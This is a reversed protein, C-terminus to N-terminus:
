RDPGFRLTVTRPQDCPTDLLVNYTHRWTGAATDYDSQWFAADASAQSLRTTKGDATVHLAFGKYDSLGTFTVPVYALGGTVTLEAQGKADAAVVLPYPQLLKGTRVSPQLDNGVAQRAVPHWTNSRKELSAVLNANPGYYDGARVPLIVMEVTCDIFDGKKFKTGCTMGISAFRNWCTGIVAGTPAPCNKGDVRAKWRRLILGRNAWAGHPPENAAAHLSVWPLRGKLAFMRQYGERGTPKWEELMKAGDGVAVLGAQHENYRDAGLSFLEFREVAVDKVVEYRLHYYGRVIDDTRGSSATARLTMAEEPSIGAYTVETLCPGCAHYATRMRKFYDREKGRHYVAFDGGGVNHTWGWKVGKGPPSHMSWVMLPRIDDIMSRTLNVDPDYCISEGWSGIAAQDWLQNTGWGILCLQSHSALPVGAYRQTAVHFKLKLRSRPPLTLMSMAHLWPGEYLLRRDKLRHWNKSIQVPIGTPHGGEDLLMPVLGTIGPVHGEKEFSLRFTRPGDDPNELRVDLLGGFASDPLAIRHRGRPGDFEVAGAKGKADTVAVVGGEPDNPGGFGVGVQVHRTWVAAEMKLIGEGITMTQKAGRTTNGLSIIAMADKWQPKTIKLGKTGAAEDLEAELLVDLRDPWATVELRGTVPLTAAGDTFRLHLVDFRQCFRGNEIMRVPYNIPDDQHLAAATCAYTKGGVAVTLKLEGPPLRSIVDNGGEAAAAYSGADGIPGYHLLRMREVDLALGYRGTQVALVREGRPSKGRWGHLWYMFTYDAKGPMCLAQSVQRVPLCPAPPKAAPKSTATQGRGRSAWTTLVMMTVLLLGARM